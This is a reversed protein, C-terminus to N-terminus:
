TIYLQLRTQSIFGHASCLLLLVVRPLLSSAPRRHASCPAFSPLFTTPARRLTTDLLLSSLWFELARSFGVEFFCPLYAYEVVEVIM